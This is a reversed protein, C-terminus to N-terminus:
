EEAGERVLAVALSKGGNTAHVRWGPFEPFEAITDTDACTNGIFIVPCNVDSKTWGTIDARGDVDIYFCVADQCGVVMYGYDHWLKVDGQHNIKIPTEKRQKPMTSQTGTKKAYLKAANMANTVMHDFNM